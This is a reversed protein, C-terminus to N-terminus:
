ILFTLNGLEKEEQKKSGYSMFVELNNFLTKRNYAKECRDFAGVLILSELARKGCIKLSVREIFDIFSTSPGSEERVRVMEEVAAKGVNKIAGMGFRINGEVVNFLWLSENVDPPLVEIDYNTCDNIYNTVKDMNNLETSLLAAFFEAPYYRKLFATQYAILAYAVAHSKNFGYAAFNAMLDFLDVAKQEDFGNEIAGQRFIEKHREMESVKKKGM